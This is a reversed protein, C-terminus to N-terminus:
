PSEREVRSQAIGEQIAAIASAYPHDPPLTPPQGALVALIATFFEGEIQWGPGQQQARQLQDTVTERWESRHESLTTMVAVTNGVFQGIVNAPLTAATASQGAPMTGDRMAQLDNLLQEVTQGAADQPLGTQQLLAIAREMSVIAEQSRHLNQYLLVALGVFGAVEGAYHMCEHELEISSKFASEAEEYLQMDRFLVALGNLTAAEGARDGVERRIPLAQEYLERARQLQGIGQYVTALNSLTIAEGARNGVERSIPLAQEYLERARQLQGIGRYVGALNSFTRGEQARDGVEKSILLAQEYL